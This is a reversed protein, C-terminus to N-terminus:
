TAKLAAQICVETIEETEDVGWTNCNRPNNMVLMFCKLLRGKQLIVYVIYPAQSLEGM